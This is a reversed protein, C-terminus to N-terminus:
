IKNNDVKKITFSIATKEANEMINNEKEKWKEGGCEWVCISGGRREKVKKQTPSCDPAKSTLFEAPLSRKLRRIKPDNKDQYM